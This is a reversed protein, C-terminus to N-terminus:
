RRRDLLGLEKARAAADRRTRADLKNLIAAVHTDVTRVSLVLRAAIEANTLGEALLEVVDTQRSTLGAPSDRTSQLRGRPIQTVGLERLRLRVRRAVPEAGLADLTSLASLLDATDPSEALAIAQEYPCGARRWLEAAERWQGNALLAYPHESPDIAVDAGAVRMRYGLEAAASPRGFQRVDEYEPAVTSVAASPDGRLWAAELLAAAAPGTRQAESLQQALAWAEELIREGDEQGRRVRVTGVVILAPCRTVAGADTVWPVEREAEDWRGLALYVIGRTIQLYLRFAHFESEDALDIADDLLQEAETLALVDLLYWAINVYARCAHETEGAALAVALSEDLM